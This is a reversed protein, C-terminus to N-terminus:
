DEMVFEQLFEPALKRMYDIADDINDVLIGCEKILGLVYLNQYCYQTEGIEKMAENKADSYTKHAARNDTLVGIIYKHDGRAIKESMRGIEASTGVPLVDGDLCAILIDTHDLRANDGDAIMKATASKKKGEEGNIETNEIPSYLDVGPFTDRIRKAWATNRYVDGIYFISGALYVKM